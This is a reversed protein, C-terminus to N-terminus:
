YQKQWLTYVKDNTKLNFQWTGSMGSMFFIKEVKYVGPELKTVIVPRTGHQHRGMIMWGYFEVPYLPDTYIEIFTNSKDLDIFKVINSNFEGLIPGHTWETKACIQENDLKLCEAQATSIFIVILLIFGKM